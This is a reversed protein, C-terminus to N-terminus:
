RFPIPFNTHTYFCDTSFCSRNEGPKRVNELLVNISGQINEGVDRRGIDTLKGALKQVTANKGKNRKWTLLMENAMEVVRNHDHNINSLIAEPIELKRGLDKWQPGIKEAIDWLLSDNPVISM